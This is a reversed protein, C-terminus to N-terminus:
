RGKLQQNRWKLWQDTSMKDPDLTQPGGGGHVPEIPDPAGTQTKTPRSLKVELRGIALASQVPDLAFMQDAEDPNQGLYYLIEPGKESVMAAQYTNESLKPMSRVVSDWDPHEAAVKEVRRQFAEERQAATTRQETERRKEEAARERNAIKWDVLAESFEEYSAYDDLNPRGTPETPKPEPAESAAAKEKEQKSIALERWYDRDKEASRRLETLEDIRKQVGKAKPKEPEAPADEQSDVSEESPPSDEEIAGEATTEPLEEGQLEAVEEM